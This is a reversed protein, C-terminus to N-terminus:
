TNPRRAQRLPTTKASHIPTFCRLYPWDPANSSPSARFPRRAASTQSGELFDSLQFGVNLRGSLCRSGIADGLCHTQLADSLGSCVELQDSAKCRGSGNECRYILIRRGTTSGRIRATSSTRCSRGAPQEMPDRSTIIRKPPM